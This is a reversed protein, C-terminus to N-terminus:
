CSEEKERELIFMLTLYIINIKFTYQLKNNYLINKNCM